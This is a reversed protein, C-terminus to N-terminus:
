RIESQAAKVNRPEEEKKEIGRNSSRSDRMNSYVSEERSQRSQKPNESEIETRM